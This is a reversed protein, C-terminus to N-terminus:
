KTSTNRLRASELLAARRLFVALYMHHLTINGTLRSKDPWSSSKAMHVQKTTFKVPTGGMTRCM